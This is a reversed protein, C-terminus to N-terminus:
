IAGLFAAEVLWLAACASCLVYFATHNEHDADVSAANRRAIRRLQHRANLWPLPHAVLLLIRQVM